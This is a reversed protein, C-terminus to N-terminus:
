QRLCPVIVRAAEAGTKATHWTVSTKCHAAQDPSAHVALAQDVCERWEAMPPDAQMVLECTEVLAKAGPPQNTVAMKKLARVSAVEAKICATKSSSRDDCATNFADWGIQLDQPNLAALAQYITPDHRLVEACDTVGQEVAEAALQDPPEADLSPDHDKQLQSELVARMVQVSYAPNTRCLTAAADDAAVAPRLGLRWALTCFGLIAILRAAHTM